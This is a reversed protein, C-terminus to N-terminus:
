LFCYLFRLFADVAGPLTSISRVIVVSSPAGLVRILITVFPARCSIQHINAFLARHWRRSDVSVPGINDSRTTEIVPGTSSLQQM